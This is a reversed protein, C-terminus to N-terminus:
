ELEEDAKAIARKDGGSIKSIILSSIQFQKFQSINQQNKM